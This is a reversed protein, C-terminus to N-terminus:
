WPMGGRDDNALDAREAEYAELAEQYVEEADGWAAYEDVWESIWKGNYYRDYEYDNM